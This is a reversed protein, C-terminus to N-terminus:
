VPFIMPSGTKNFMTKPIQEAYNLVCRHSIWSLTYVNLLGYLGLLTLYAVLLKRLLSSLVHICEFTSYGLLAQEEPHCTHTFSLSSLLPITYGVILTVMLLKFITQALYVQVSQLPQILCCDSSSGHSYVMPRSFVHGPYPPASTDWSIIVLFRGCLSMFHVCVVHSCSKYNSAKQMDTSLPGM